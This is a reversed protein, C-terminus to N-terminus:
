LVEGRRLQAVTRLQNRGMWDRYRIATATEAHTSWDGRHALLFEDGEIKAQWTEGEWDIFAISPNAHRHWNSDDVPRLEFADGHIWASWQAGNWAVYEMRNQAWPENVPGAGTETSEIFAFRAGAITLAVAALLGLLAKAM